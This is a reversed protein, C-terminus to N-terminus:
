IKIDEMLFDSLKNKIQRCIVCFDCDTMSKAACVVCACLECSIGIHSTIEVNHKVNVDHKVVANIVMWKSTMFLHTTDGFITGLNVFNSRWFTSTQCEVKVFRMVPTALVADLFEDEEKRENPSVYENIATDQEYNNYLAKM